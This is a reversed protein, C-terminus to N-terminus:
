SCAQENRFRVPDANRLDSVSKPFSSMISNLKQEVTLMQDWKDGLGDYNFFKNKPM